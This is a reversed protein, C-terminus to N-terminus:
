QHFVTTQPPHIPLYQRCELSNLHLVPQIGSRLSPPPCYQQIIGPNELFNLLLSFRQGLYGYSYKWFGQYKTKFIQMALLCSYHFIGHNEYYNPM